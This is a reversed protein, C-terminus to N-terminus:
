SHKFVLWDGDLYAFKSPEFLSPAPTVSSIKRQYYISILVFLGAVSNLANELSAREFKDSRHHKVKNNAQWWSPPNGSNEWSSWPSFSLGYRPMELTYTFFDPYAAMIVKRYQHINDAKSDQDIDSSLKRAMVDVEASAVMLIRALQISFCQFNSEHFEIWRALEAIDEEITLFYNWHIPTRDIRISMSQGVGIFNPMIRFFSRYGLMPRGNM